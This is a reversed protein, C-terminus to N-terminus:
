DFFVVLKTKRERPTADSEYNIGSHTSLLSEPIGRNVLLALLSQARQLGIKENIRVSGTEDTYGVIDIRVPKSFEQLSLQNLDTIFAVLDALIPDTDDIEADGKPFIFETSEIRQRAVTMEEVVPNNVQLRNTDIGNLGAITPWLPTLKRMWQATAQGSLILTDDTISLQTTAAPQLRKTARNLLVAPELSLHPHVIYTPSVKETDFFVTIPDTGDPDALLTIEFSDEVLQSSLVLLGPEVALQTLLASRAIRKEYEMYQWTGLLSAVVFISVIALWPIKRKKEIGKQKIELINRLDDDVDAFEAPDGSYDTLQSRKLRHLSELMGKLKDRLNEPVRGRVLAALVAQPGRQIVVTMEGLRLTDLVDGESVSFSDEIFDQIASFMSSVMDPDKMETFESFVHHILLSTERHILFVQEIQYDLTNLLVLESYSRGTRWADFRWRLAQPSLSQELLQNFNELMQQLTESISKRIAPGMIPYLSEALKHPDQNISSSIARDISPALVNAVSDDAAMRSRLAEAVIKAVHEAFRGDDNLENKLQLLEEYDKGLLIERIRGIEAADQNM